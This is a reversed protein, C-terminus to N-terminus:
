HRHPHRHRRRDRYRRGLECQGGHRLLLLQRLRQGRRWGTRRRRHGGYLSDDGEGGSIVDDGAEGKLNDSGAGGDIVDNDDGGYVTDNGEGGSITDAGADGKLYDAGEGGEITDAGDGAYVYDDGAGGDIVNDGADGTIRDGYDSGTVNEINTLTDDGAGGTATGNNLNVTVASDAGTYDATDSGAGGDLVDDGEGGHLTDDADSGTVTDDHSGAYFIKGDGTNVIPDDIGLVSGSVAFSGGSFDQPQTLTLDGAINVDGNLTLTHGSNLNVTLDGLTSGSDVQITASNGSLIMPGSVDAGSVTLDGDVTIPDTITVAGGSKVIELNPLDGEVGAGSITQDGSGTLRVTGTSSDALSAENSTVNGGVILTGGNIGGVNDITLDGTVALDSDLTLSHSSSMNIRLNAISVSPDVDVSSSYGSLIVTGNISAGSGTLDGDITIADTVTITGGTKAVNLNPIDGEVGGGSLTQDGSGTLSITASSSDALGSVNSTVDGGVHITQGNIGSVNSITLDGTVAIDSELTLTHSSGMDIELNTVTVSSDVNVSSSYGSLIVTGNIAAGGGTLDGDVTIADAVTITGGTKAIQLNPLDGEVGGGSLTQDGSGSLCITATSSNSIDADNSTVDGSVVFTGGDIGGVQNITFTAPSTSTM